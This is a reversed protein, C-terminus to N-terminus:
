KQEVPMNDLRHVGSRHLAHLIAWVAVGAADFVVFLIAVTPFFTYHALELPVVPNDHAYMAQITRAKEIAIVIGAFIILMLVPTSKPFRFSKHMDFRRSPFPLWHQFGALGHFHERLAGRILGAAERCCFAARAPFKRNAADNHLERFVAIMEDSFQDRYAAPYFNVLSRYLKLM